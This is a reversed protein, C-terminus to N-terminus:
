VTSGMTRLQNWAPSNFHLQVDMLQWQAGVFLLSKGLEISAIDGEHLVKTRTVSSSQGRERLSFLTQETSVSTTTRDFEGAANSLTSLTDNEIIGPLIVKTAFLTLFGNAEAGWRAKARSLDQIGVVLHLGQGGAESIIAPLPIPATNNAEDLVFTVHPRMPEGGSRQARSRAYVAYRIEELLGVLLPAYEGARDPSATIYLTDNSRVFAHIDFNPDAGLKRTISSQYIRMSRTLTSVISGRERDPTILLGDLQARVIAADEDGTLEAELLFALPELAGEDQGAAQVWTAVTGIDTKGLYAAYLLCELWARAQDIFHSGEGKDASALPATISGAIRRADAWSHVSTLPSWRVQTALAHTPEVAGPDFHWCRGIRARM